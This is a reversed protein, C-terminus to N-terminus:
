GLVLKGRSGSTLPQQSFEDSRNDLWVECLRDGRASWRPSSAGYARFCHLNELTCWEVAEDVNSVNLALQVRSM